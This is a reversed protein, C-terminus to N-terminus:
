LDPSPESIAIDLMLAELIEGWSAVNGRTWRWVIAGACQHGDAVALGSNKVCALIWHKTRTYDLQQM